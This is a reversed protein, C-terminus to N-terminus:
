GLVVGTLYVSGCCAAASPDNASQEPISLARPTTARVHTRGCSAPFTDVLGFAPEQPNYYKLVTFRNV